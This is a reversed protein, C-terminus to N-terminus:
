SRSFQSQYLNAYVGDQALLQDHTGQEGIGDQTFVVINDANKITSLRHAVVITTRNKSLENLANQILIETANDLASTAEDLILIPPNKLFVRAISIRQKQGGSLKLGHEGIDSEYGDPLSMIHDHINAKKAAEEIDAMTANSSGYAINERITGTFLFVTQAVIGINQRLSAMTYDCINHNNISIEGQLVEYFRPILHCLTTKGSGSEGVLATTKGNKIILDLHNLIDQNEEYQFTVDKFVIDGTTDTLEKANPNDKEPEVEMIEAFRRFGSMGNQFQETFNVLRRIPAAFMNVFLLYATFDGITIDGGITYLGGAMLAVVQLLDIFFGTGAFFHGMVKYASNRAQKFEKNEKQFREEEYSETVFSKSVRIGSLSNEIGANVGSIRERTKTFAKLMRKRLGLAFLFIFPLFAFIILTIPLNMAAMFGFSGLILTISIFLDEPGHHALESIDMLDNVIRSMLSGVKNEDYYSLPLKQFHKFLDRRMDGQMRVGIVHGWYQMWYSLLSKIVYLAVLVVGWIILFRVNGNPVYDDIVLSIAVPFALDMVSAVFACFLDFFFLKKHPKYYKAFFKIM